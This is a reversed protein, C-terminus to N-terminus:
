KVIITGTMNPHPTCHYPYSGPALDKTDLTYSGNQNLIGSDFAGADATV